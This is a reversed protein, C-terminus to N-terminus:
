VRERGAARGIQGDGQIEGGAHPELTLKSVLMAAHPGMAVCGHVSALLRVPSKSVNRLHVHVSVTDTDRVAGAPRSIGLQLGRTVKGWIIQPTPARERKTEGNVTIVMSLLALSSALMTVPKMLRVKRKTQFKAFVM